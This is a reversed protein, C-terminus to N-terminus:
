LVRDVCDPNGCFGVLARLAKEKNKYCSTMLARRLQNDITAPTALSLNDMRTASRPKLPQNPNNQPVQHTIGTLTTGTPLHKLIANNPKGSLCRATKPLLRLRAKFPGPTALTTYDGSRTSRSRLDWRCKSAALETITILSPVIEHEATIGTVIAEAMQTTLSSGENNEIGGQPARLDVLELHFWSQQHRQLATDVPGTGDCSLVLWEKVVKM